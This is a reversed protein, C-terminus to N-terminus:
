RRSRREGGAKSQYYVTGNTQSGRWAIHPANGSDTSITPMYGTATDDVVTVSAWNSSSALQAQTPYAVLTKTYRVLNLTTQDGTTSASVWVVHLYGGSDMAISPEASDFTYLLPSDSSRGSALVIPVGWTSGGADLSRNLLIRDWGTYTDRVHIVLMK